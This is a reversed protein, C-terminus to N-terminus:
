EAPLRALLHAMRRDGDPTGALAALEARVRGLGALSRPALRGAPALEIEEVQVGLLRADTPDPLHVSAACDHM